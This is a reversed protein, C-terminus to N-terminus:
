AMKLGGSIHDFRLYSIAPLVFGEPTCHFPQLQFLIMVNKHDCYMACPYDAEDQM